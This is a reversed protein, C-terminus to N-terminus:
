AHVYSGGKVTLGVEIARRVSRADMLKYLGGEGDRIFEEMLKRITPTAPQSAEQRKFAVAAM